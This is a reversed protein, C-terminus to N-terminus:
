LLKQGQSVARALSASIQGQSKQFSKADTAGSVNMVINIPQSNLASSFKGGHASGGMAGGVTGGLASQLPAILLDEIANKAFDQAISQALNRLSFEGSVAAKELAKAIREGAQEFIGALSDAATRAPGDAFNILAKAAKQTDNM